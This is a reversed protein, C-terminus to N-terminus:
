QNPLNGGFPKLYELARLVISKLDALASQFGSTQQSQYQSAAPDGSLDPSIFTQQTPALQYSSGHAGSTTQTQPVGNLTMVGQGNLPADHAPRVVGSCRHVVSGFM